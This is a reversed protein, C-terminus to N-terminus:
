NTAPACVIHVGDEGMAIKTPQGKAVAHYCVFPRILGAPKAAGAAPLDKQHQGLGGIPTIGIAKFFRSKKLFAKFHPKNRSAFGLKGPL